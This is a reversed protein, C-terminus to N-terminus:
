AGRRNLLTLVTLDDYAPGDQRFNSAAQLVAQVLQEASVLPAVAAAAQLRAMGFQESAPSLSETIGDTVILLGTGPPLEQHRAEFASDFAGLVPNDMQDLVCAQGNRRLLLALGHGADVYTLQGSRPELVGLFLTVFMTGPLHGCLHQNVQTVAEAPRPCYSMATHLAAHLNSMVMAASLGKGAVDAVAFALRGDPLSWLDCYDGGVWMAPQYCVAVDIGPVEPAQTQVLRSQIQRALALQCDLTRREANVEAWLLGKRVLGVQRVVAQVFELLSEGRADAPLDLYLCDLGAKGTAIPACVVV